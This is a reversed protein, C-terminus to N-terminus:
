KVRLARFSQESNAGVRFGGRLIWVNTSVALERALAGDPTAKQELRDAASAPPAATTTSAAAAPASPAAAGGGFRVPEATGATTSLTASLTVREKSTRNTGAAELRYLAGSQELDADLAAAKDEAAGRASPRLLREAGRGGATPAVRARAARDVAVLTGEYVSGDADVVLLRDGDRRIEFSNLIGANQQALRTGAKAHPLDSRAFMLHLTKPSAGGLSETENLRAFALTTNTMAGPADAISGTDSSGIRRDAGASRLALTPAATPRAAPPPVSAPPPAAALATKAKFADPSTDASERSPASRSPAAATSVAPKGLSERALVVQKETPPASELKIAGDTPRPEATPAPENAPSFAGGLGREASPDSRAARGGLALSEAVAKTASRREVLERSEESLLRNPAPAKDALAGGLAPEQGPRGRTSQKESAQKEIGWPTQPAPASKAFLFEKDGAPGIWFQRAAWLGAVIVACLGGWSVTRILLARWGLLQPRRTEQRHPFVRAAESLLLRRTAPHLEFANKGEDRRKRAWGRLLPELRHETEPPM